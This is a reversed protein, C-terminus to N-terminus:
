RGERIQARRLNLSGSERIDALSWKDRTNLGTLCVSWDDSSVPVGDVLFAGNQSSIRETYAPPRWIRLQTGTGWKNRLAPPM